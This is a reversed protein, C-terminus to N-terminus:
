ARRPRRVVGRVMGALRDLDGRRPFFQRPRVGFERVLFVAATLGAVTYAVTSAIAAGTAGLPPILVIYLLIATLFGAGMSVSELLPRRQAILAIGILKAASIGLSGAALLRLLQTAEDFEPGFIGGCLLPAAVVLVLAFFVTLTITIRFLEAARAGVDAHAARVLDPRAVSAIAMPLIFLGEFWAVAVSYLGLERPGAVAGLIWQDMRYSGTAMVGGIHSKAGFVVTERALTSDPRGFGVRRLHDVTLLVASIANGASWAGLATTVSLTGTVALAVNATLAVVPASLLAVNAITFEYSGRALYVLYTQLMVSPISLLALTLELTGVERALYPAYALALVAVLAATAGLVLAMMLSNTGLSPIRSKKLGSLNANAEQVSLNFVYSTIGAVTMLFTVEGRGTPGLVRAVLLVNLLGVFSVGLYSVYTGLAAKKIPRPPEPETEHPNDSM